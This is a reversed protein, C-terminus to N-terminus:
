IEATPPRSRRAVLLAIAVFVLGTIAFVLAGAWEHAHHEDYGDFEITFPFLFFGLYAPVESWKDSWHAATQLVGWAGLVVWSSRALRNGLAIYLLGALAILIWDFDGGHFFWLLGGGIALGALVQLWFAFPRWPGRDVGVGAFLYVLGILMVIVAGWDGGNSLLDFGFFGASAALAFVLLPFRFLWLAVTSAAVAILELVLLWFHFGSIFVQDDHVNPLWGFWDLVAGAFFVFAAVASLAFLGATVRHGTGQAALALFAVLVFVLLAWFVLGFGGTESSEVALLALLSALITLGGLYALFSASSWPVRVATM